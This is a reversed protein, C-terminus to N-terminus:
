AATGVLREVIHNLIREQAEGPVSFDDDALAGSVTIVDPSDAGAKFPRPPMLPFKLM